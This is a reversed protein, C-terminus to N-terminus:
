KWIKQKVTSFLATQLIVTESKNRKFFCFWFRRNVAPRGHVETLEIIDGM